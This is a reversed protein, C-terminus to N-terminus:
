PTIMGWSRGRFQGQAMGAVYIVLSFGVKWSGRTGAAAQEVLPGGGGSYFHLLESCVHDGCSMEASARNDSNM